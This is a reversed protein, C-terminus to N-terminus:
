KGSEILPNEPLPQADRGGGDDVPPSLAMINGNRIELLQSGLEKVVRSRLGAIHPNLSDVVRGAAERETGEVERIHQSLYAGLHLALLYRRDAPSYTELMKEAARVEGLEILAAILWFTKAEAEDSSGFTREEAWQQFDSLYDRVHSLAISDRALMYYTVFGVMPYREFLDGMEGSVGSAAIAECVEKWLELKESVESLYCAQLALGIALASEYINKGSASAAGQFVQRLGSVDSPRDGFYFVVARKWWDKHVVGGIFTLDPIGRGAFFEQLLHHRFEIDRSTLRFLGSRHVIENTLHEASSKHGRVALERAIMEKAEDLSIRTVERCQMEFAVKTLLFDKLPAQYQQSLGKNEDWRGLLLETFKKFLETINAPVDQRSYEATAAFVTVLLPNLEIGHVHQLRRLLEQGNKIPIQKGEQLNKIIKGAEKWSIPSIM